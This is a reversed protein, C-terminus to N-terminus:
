INKCKPCKFGNTKDGCSECNLNIKFYGYKSIEFYKGILITFLIIGFVMGIWLLSM